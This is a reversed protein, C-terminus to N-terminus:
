EPPQYISQLLCKSIEQRLEESVNLFDLAVEMKDDNLEATRKIEGKLVIPDFNSFKIQFAIQSGLLNPFQRQCNGIRRM